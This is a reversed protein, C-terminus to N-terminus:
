IVIVGHAVMVAAPAREEVGIRGHGRRHRVRGVRPIRQGIPDVRVVGHRRELAFHGCQALLRTHRIALTPPKSYPM